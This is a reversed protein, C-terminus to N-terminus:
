FLLGFFLIPSSYPSPPPHPPISSTPPLNLHSYSRRNTEDYLWATPRPAYAPPECLSQVGWLGLGGLPQHQNADFSLGFCIVEVESRAMVRKSGRSTLALRRLIGYFQETQLGLAYRGQLSSPLSLSLTLSPEGEERGDSTIPQCAPLRELWNSAVQAAETVSARSPSRPHTPPYQTVRPHTTPLLTRHLAMHFVDSDSAGWESQGEAFGRVGM